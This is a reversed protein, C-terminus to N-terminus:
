FLTEDILFTEDLAMSYLRSPIKALNIDWKVLAVKKSEKMVSTSQFDIKTM